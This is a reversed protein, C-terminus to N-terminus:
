KGLRSKQKDYGVKYCFGCFSVIAGGITAVAAVAPLCGGAVDDLADVDLEGQALVDRVGQSFEEIEDLTFDNGLANIQSLVEESELELFARAREEDACLVKSLKDAREKTLM